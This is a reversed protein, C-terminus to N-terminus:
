DEDLENLIKNIVRSLTAEDINSHVVKQENGNSDTYNVVIENNIGGESGDKRKNKDGRSGVISAETQFLNENKDVNDSIVRDVAYGSEPGAAADVTILLDVKIDDKEL